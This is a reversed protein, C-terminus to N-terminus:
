RQFIPLLGEPLALFLVNMATAYSGGYSANKWSGDREQTVLVREREKDAWRPYVEPDPHQWLAQGLYFREYYPFKSLEGGTGRERALDRVALERWIYAYGDDIVRGEYIGAAHLTGLCAGTLAVSPRDLDLTYRFGGDENQLRKVYDIARDIVKTQVEVGAEKAARLAQLLCVTISGEHESQRVPEYYWGGDVTQTREICDVAASLATAIRRGRPTRPSLGYAQALALTALGHGHMRSHHDAEDSIYGAREDGEPAVRSLLYDISQEVERAYPGRGLQHGTSMFALAGLATVGVPSFTEKQGAPFSGDPELEHQVKLYALARDIAERVPDRDLQSPLPTSVPSGPEQRKTEGDGEAFGAAALAISLGLCLSPLRM